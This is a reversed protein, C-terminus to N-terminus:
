NAEGSVTNERLRYLDLGKYSKASLFKYRGALGLRIVNKEIGRHTSLVLWVNKDGIGTYSMFDGSLFGLKLDDRKLYYAAPEIEFRPYVVIYDGQGAEKQIDSIVERWQYKEIESYYGRLGPVSLLFIICAAPIVLRGSQLSAIGRSALIYFAPAAAITYRYLLIPSSFQSIAYPILVVASLWILLLYIRGAYTLKLSDSYDASPKFVRGLYKVGALRSPNIVALVSFLLLLWLLYDSGSYNVFYNYIDRPGPQPIWFGEQHIAAANKILLFLCPLFLLGTLLQLTIWKGISLEQIRRHRIFQTFCFINQAAVVFLGFYHSYLLCLTSIVYAAAHLKRGSIMLKLLFYFSLLALFAMLSYARAEQSFWINFVPLAMLFAALLGTRRDFLLSGVGYIVFLSLSGFLASPFRSSFESDGALPVWFHLLTYYLPPNNDNMKHIWSIQEGLGLKAVAISISEDYWVSEGGLNYIRLGLGLLFILLLLYNNKIFATISARELGATM